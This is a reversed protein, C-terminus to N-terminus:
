RSRAAQAYVERGILDDAADIADGLGARRARSLLWSLRQVRAELTRADRAAQVARRKEVRVQVEHQRLEQALSGHRRVAAAVRRAMARPEFGARALEHAVAIMDDVGLGLAADSAALVRLVESAHEPELELDDVAGLLALRAGAQPGGVLQVLAVLGPADEPALGALGAARLAAVLRLAHELASPEGMGHARAVRDLEALRAEYSMAEEEALTTPVSPPVIPAGAPERGKGLAQALRAPWEPATWGTTAWLLAGRHLVLAVADAPALGLWAAAVAEQRLMVVDITEAREPTDLVQPLARAICEGLQPEVARDGPEPLQIPGLQRLRELRGEGDGAFAPDLEVDDLRALHCRRQMPADLGTAAQVDAAGDPSNMAIMVVAALDLRQDNELPVSRHGHLLLEIAAQAQRTGRGKEDIAVLPGCLAGRIAAVEGTSRRRVGLSGRTEFGAHIVSEPELGLMLACATLTFTKAKLGMTSFLVYSGHHREYALRVLRSLLVLEAVARHVPSPMLALHPFPLTPWTPPAAPLASRTTEGSRQGGDDTALQWVGAREGPVVTGRARLRALAAYVSARPHRTFLPRLSRPGAGLLDLIASEIPNM